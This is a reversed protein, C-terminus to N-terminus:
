KKATTKKAAPKSEAKKTSTKKEAPKKATTKKEGSKATSKSASKKAKSEDAPKEEEEEHEHPQQEEKILDLYIAFVEDIIKDDNVVRLFQDGGNSDDEFVFIVAEDDAVGEMKDIPKLMAYLKEQYPILAIQEFKVGNDQEDYLTIPENDDVDLLREISNEEKSM